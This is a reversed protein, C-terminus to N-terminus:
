QGGTSPYWEPLELVGFFAAAVIGVNALVILWALARGGFIVAPRYRPRLWGSSQFISGIGHSLHLGLGIMALVYFLAIPVQQFGVVMMSYVDHRGQDDVLEHLDPRIVVGITFHMLHYIVFLLVVAGSALMTRSAETSDISRKVAYRVPRAERNRRTLAAACALHVGFVGLLGLRAVWLGPGLGKLKEAYSNILDPGGFVQLNGALHAVVFGFLMAGTAAMLFKLGVSSTLSRVWRNM